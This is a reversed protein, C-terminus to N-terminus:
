VSLSASCLSSAPYGSANVKDSVHDSPKSSLNSSLGSDLCSAESLRGDGVCWVLSCAQLARAVLCGEGLDAQLGDAPELKGRLGVTAWAGLQLAVLALVALWGESQEPQLPGPLPEQKRLLGLTAWVGLQAVSAALCGEGLDAQLGDAPELKGWLGVTAWAGLQLAVLALVALWGESQEPQLPGPLPEQKRWLGFTAWVGLQAVCAALCGEGLDAQLGDAPELKGWLGVTAWAGLQLAVLALVALWNKSQEPQLPGALPEQKRLGLMAWVGLQAARAALCGGGLEPQLGDVPKGFGRLLKAKRWLGLTAWVALWGESLAPQKAGLCEPHKWPGPLPELLWGEM